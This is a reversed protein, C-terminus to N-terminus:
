LSDDLDETRRQRPQQEIPDSGSRRSHNKGLLDDREMTKQKEDKKM